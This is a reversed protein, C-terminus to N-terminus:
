GEIILIDNLQKSLMNLLITKNSINAYVKENEWIGSLSVRKIKFYIRKNSKILKMEVFPHNNENKFKKIEDIIQKESLFKARSGKGM